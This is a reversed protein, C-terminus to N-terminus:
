ILLSRHVKFLPVTAPREASVCASLGAPQAPPEVLFSYFKGPLTREAPTACRAAACARNSPREVAGLTAFSAPPPACDAPASCACAEGCCGCTDAALYSLDVPQVSAYATSFVALVLWVLRKM